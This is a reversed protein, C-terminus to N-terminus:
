YPLVKLATAVKAWDPLAAIGTAFAKGSQAPLICVIGEGSPQVLEPAGFAAAVAKSLAEQSGGELRLYRRLVDEAPDALFEEESKVWFLTRHVDESKVCDIIDSVVASATPLKGAGRGYFLVDGLMDSRVLIGNYVDSVSALQSEGPLLAPCVEALVRGDELRKARGILKIAYGLREAAAMDATTIARIGETPVQAPFIHRGFALSGLICIKRCADHGDVDASPDTTEAYGLSQALKLAEDFSLDERKMKTLMFNTTGNLIGAIETFENAAMCQYIPRIIPTGGGVSAEFLFQIGREKAIQLLEWGHTAVLEKNSTVVSKGALLSDKVFQYAPKLGGISEVVVSVEPDKLVVGFDKCLKGENPDGPFDRIDCIYKVAIPQGAKRAIGEANREIVEAVGSGVTGYGIIAVQIM